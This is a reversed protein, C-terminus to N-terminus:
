DPGALAGEAVLREAVALDRESDIEAWGGAVRVAGVRVGAAIMRALLTTVDMRDVADPPEADLFGAVTRWGAASVGLIGMYQGEVDDLSAPRAGIEAVAGDAALRFTEADDLPDDFRRSWLGLWAADYTIAIDEGAEVLRRVADAGYVLDGYSVVGGDGSLWDGACLLSAVMNTEAWRPNDIFVAGPAAIAGARYGRVIAVEDVGAGHLAARQWDILPRGALPVMCKPRDATAAGLRRGRGAALIVARM